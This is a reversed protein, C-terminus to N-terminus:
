RGPRGANRVTISEADRRVVETITTTWVKENSDTVTIRKGVLATPLAAVAARGKLVAGWVTKRKGAESASASQVPLRHPRWGAIPEQADPSTAENGASDPERSRVAGAKPSETRGSDPRQSSTAENGASDPERSRVAGAKPSEARGSHDPRQSASRRSRAAADAAPPPNNSDRKKAAQPKTVRLAPWLEEPVLPGDGDLQFLKRNRQESLGDDLVKRLKNTEEHDDFALTLRVVGVLTKRQTNTENRQPADAKLSAELEREITKQRNQLYAIRARRQAPTLHSHPRAAAATEAPQPDPWGPWEEQPILPGDGDLRFLSRDNARTLGTDLQRRLGPILEPDQQALNLVVHGVLFKMQDLEEDREAEEAALLAILETSVPTLKKLLSRIRRLPRRLFKPEDAM